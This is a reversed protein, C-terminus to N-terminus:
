FKGNEADTLTVPHNILLKPKGNADYSWYWVTQNSLRSLGAPGPANPTWPPLFGGPIKIDHASNLAALVTNNDITKLGKTVAVLAQLGVWGDVARGEMISIDATQDGRKREANIDKVFKAMRPDTLPPYAAAHMIKYTYPAGSAIQQLSYAWPFVIREVSRGTQLIARDMGIGNTSGSLMVVAKPSTSNVAAGLPTFDGISPPVRVNVSWGQGGNLDKLFGEVTGAFLLSAPTDNTFAAVPTLHEKKILYAVGAHYSILQGVGPLFFNPSNNAAPSIPQVGIEPINAAALIPVSSADFTSQGGVVAVVHSDVMKRACSATQNPDSQDNCVIVGLPHGHLGGSRNISRAAAILAAPVGPASSSTGGLTLITGIQVLPLKLASSRAPVYVRLSRAAAVGHTARASVTTAMVTAAAVALLSTLCLLRLKVPAGKEFFNARRPARIIARALWSLL